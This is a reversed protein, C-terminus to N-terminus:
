VRCRIVYQLVSASHLYRLARLLQYMFYSIHEDTLLQNSHIVRHLDTECLDTVFYIDDFAAFSEPVLVDWIRIINPHHLQRLFRMERLIRRSDLLDRFVDPIKKIAITAGSETDSAAIVEGYAGSGIVKILEYKKPIDFTTMRGQLVHNDRHITPTCEDVQVQKSSKVEEHHHHDLNTLAKLTDHQHSNSRDTATIRNLSPMSFSQQIAVLDDHASPNDKDQNSKMPPDIKTEILMSRDLGPGLASAVVSSADMQQTSFYERFAKATDGDDPCYYSFIPLDASNHQDVSTSTTSKQSASSLQQQQHQPDSSQGFMRAGFGSNKRSHTGGGAGATATTSSSLMMPTGSEDVVESFSSTAFIISLQIKGRYAVPPAWWEKCDSYQDCLNYWRPLAGSARVEPGSNLIALYSALNIRCVGVLEDPLMFRNNFIEVKLYFTSGPLSGPFSLRVNSHWRATNLDQESKQRCIHTVSGSPDGFACFLRATSLGAARQLGRFLRNRHSPRRRTQEPPSKSKADTTTTATTSRKQLKQNYLSEDSQSPVNGTTTTTTSTSFIKITENISLGDHTRDSEDGQVIMCRVYPRKAQGVIAYALEKAQLIQVYFIGPPVLESVPKSESPLVLNIDRGKKASDFAVSMAVSDGNIHWRILRNKYDLALKHVFLQTIRRNGLDKICLTEKGTVILSKAIGQHQDAPSTGVETVDCLEFGQISVTDLLISLYLLIGDYRRYHGWFPVLPPYNSTLVVDPHFSEFYLPFDHRSEQLLEGLHAYATQVDFPKSAYAITQDSPHSDRNRDQQEDIGVQIARIWQKWELQSRAAFYQIPHGQTKVSFGFKHATTAVTTTVDTILMRGRLCRGQVFDDRSEYYSLTADPELVCYCAKWTSPLLDGKRTLYGEFAVSFERYRNTNSRNRGPCKKQRLSVNPVLPEGLAKTEDDDLGIEDEKGTLPIFTMSLNQLEVELEAKPEASDKVPPDHELKDKEEVENMISEVVDDFCDEISQSSSFSLRESYSPPTEEEHNEDGFTLKEQIWHLFAALVKEEIPDTNKITVTIKQAQPIMDMSLLVLREPEVVANEIKEIMAYGRYTRRKGAPEQDQDKIIWIIQEDLLLLPFSRTSECSGSVQCTATNWFHTYVDLQMWPECVCLHIDFPSFDLTLSRRRSM